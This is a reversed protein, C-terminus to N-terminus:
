RESVEVLIGLFGYNTNNAKQKEALARREQTIAVEANALRNGETTVTVIEQLLADESAHIKELEAAHGKRQGETQAIMMERTAAEEPFSLYIILRWNKWLM